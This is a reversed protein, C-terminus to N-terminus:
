KVTHQGVLSMFVIFRLKVRQPLIISLSIDKILSGHWLHREITLLLTTRNYDRKLNFSIICIFHQDYYTYIFVLLNSKILRISYSSCSYLKIFYLIHYISKLTDNERKLM